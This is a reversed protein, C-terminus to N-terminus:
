ENNLRLNVVNGPSNDNGSSNAGIHFNQVQRFNPSAGKKQAEKERYIKLLMEDSLTDLNGGAPTEIKTVPEAQSMVRPQAPAHSPVDFSDGHEIKLATSIKRADYEATGMPPKSGPISFVEEKAQIPPQQFNQPRLPKEYREHNLVNEVRPVDQKPTAVFNPSFSINKLVVPPKEKQFADAVPLKEPAKVVSNERDYFKEVDDMKHIFEASVFNKDASEKYTEHSPM